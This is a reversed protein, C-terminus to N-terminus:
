CLAFQFNWQHKKLPQSDLQLDATVNANMEELKRFRNRILGLGRVKQNKVTHVSIGLHKATEKNGMGKLYHLLIVRRCEVPLSEIINWGEIILESRIMKHLVSDEHEETDRLIIIEQRKKRRATELYNLCANRTSIDLFAKAAAVNAFDNKREWYKIFVETVLDEAVLQDRLLKRAFFIERSRYKHFIQEFSPQCGENLRLFHVSSM